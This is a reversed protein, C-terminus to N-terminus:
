PSHPSFLGMGFHAHIGISIPGEVLTPFEICFAGTPRRAGDDGLKARTRVFDNPKWRGAVKFPGNLSLPTVIAQDIKESAIDPRVAILQARLDEVLFAVRSNWDALDVRSPGRTKAHRTAIYPTASVWIKSSHTLSMKNESQAGQGMFQMRVVRISHARNERSHLRIERLMEIAQMEDASFGSRCFLTLQDIRGDGNEDTPLFYAHSHGTRPDGQADKGTLVSELNIPQEGSKHRGLYDWEHGYQAQGRVNVLCSILARRSAEAVLITDTVFAPPTSDLAFRVVKSILSSGAQNPRTEIQLQLTEM